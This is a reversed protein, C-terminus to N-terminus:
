KGIYALGSEEDREPADKGDFLAVLRVAAATVAPSIM